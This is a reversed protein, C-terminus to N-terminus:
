GGAALAAQTAASHNEFIRRLIGPTALSFPNVSLKPAALPGKASYTLGFMGEGKRSVLLEGILPAAGMASNLAYSPAVGGSLDVTHNDFDIVGQTTIGMAPGTARAHGINLRAGRISVPASVKAFEIGSGNLTDAMGKLSGVTLIRALAPARTLRVKSMEVRLDAGGQVLRGNVSAQGGKFPRQGFVAFAAEGVDSVQGSVAMGAADPNLRLSVLSAGDDRSITVDLPRREEGGWGGSIRVNRVLGQESIRVQAMQVDLALPKSGRPRGADTGAGPQGGQQLLRRADLYRARASLRQSAGDAALDLAGDFAGELKAESIKLVGGSTTRWQGSANLAFGPGQGRISTADWGDEARAFDATMRMPRGAPKKWQVFPSNVAAKQLDLELHGGQLGQGGIDLAAAVSAPGAVVGQPMLGLNALAAGDIAGGLNLRRRGKSAPSASFHFDGGAVQAAGNWGDSVSTLTLDIPLPAKPEIGAPLGLAHLEDASLTTRWRYQTRKGAASSWSIQGLWPGVNYQAAGNEGSVSVDLALTTPRASVADPALGLKQAEAATLQANYRLRRSPGDTFAITGSYADADLTGNWGQGSRMLALRVPTHDPVGKGVPVGIARLSSADAMGQLLTHGGAGSSWTAQGNFGPSRISGHGDDGQSDFKAAFRMTSGGSGSLGFAAGDILGDFQAREGMPKGNPFDAVYQLPGRYPGLQVDGQASLRDLTGEISVQQGKLAMGLAAGNVEAQRVVGSYSAQYDEPGDDLSRSIRFGVVGKGSLRAPDFGHAKAVGSTSRNVVDLMARADGQARAQVLLRKGQGRLRPVQLLGEGLAVGEVEGSQVTMDFRDGQLMGGGRMREILPTQDMVRVSADEFAYTLKMRDNGMPRHPGVAGQPLRMQFVAHGYRGGQVHRSIWDRVDDGLEDPWLATVAQPPLWGDIRGDLDVGWSKPTRPRTLVGSLSLPAGDVLANLQDLDLEGTSPAFSARLGFRDIPAPQIHPSFSLRSPGGVLTLHARAPGTLRSEPTLWAQGGLDIQAQASAVRLAQILVQGRGPDYSARLQGSQFPTPAGSLRVRGEGATLQIDAAQVGRATSWSLSGRGQVPADLISLLRTNGVWPFLRAPVLDTAEARISATKLGVLGVAQVKLSAGGASMDADAALRGDRKLLRVRSIRGTWAVPGGVQRFTVEGRALEVDQLFSLPRGRKLSGTLDDFTRWLDGGAKPPYGSADYGLGYRGQPSISVAVFFDQLALRGPAPAFGAVSDLSLGAEARRARLVPRGKGDALSVDTLVLGLAHSPGFWALSAAGVRARGGKVGSALWREVAPRAAEAPIPGQTLRWVGGAAALMAALALGIVAYRVHRASPKEVQSRDRGIDPTQGALTAKRNL